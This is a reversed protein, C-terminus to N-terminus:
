AVAFPFVGGTATGMQLAIQDREHPPDADIARYPDTLLFPQYSNNEFISAFKTKWDPTKGLGEIRKAKEPDFSLYGLLNDFSRNELMLVVIHEISSLPSGPM